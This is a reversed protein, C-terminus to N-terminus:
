PAPPQYRGGVSSFVGDCYGGWAVLESGTWATAAEGCLGTPPVVDDTAWSDGIRDYATVGGDPELYFARDSGWGSRPQGFSGTLYTVDWTGSDYWWMDWTGTSVEYQLGAPANGFPGGGWFYVTGSDHFAEYSGGRECGSLPCMADDWGVGPTFVGGTLSGGDSCWSGGYVMLSSGTWVVPANYRPPPEDVWVEPTWTGADVDPLRELAALESTGDWCNAVGGWVWVNGGGVAASFHARGQDLDPGAEWSDTALDYAATSVETPDYPNPSSCGGMIYFRGDFYVAAHAGRATPAEFDDLELWAPSCRGALCERGGQCVYGLAGCNQEDTQTDQALATAPLALTLLFVLVHIFSRM